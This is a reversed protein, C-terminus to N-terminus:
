RLKVSCSSHVLGRASHQPKTGLAGGPFRTEVGNQLALARRLARSTADGSKVAEGASRARQAPRRVRRRGALHENWEGQSQRPSARGEEGEGRANIFGPQVAADGLGPLGRGPTPPSARSVPSARAPHQGCEPSDAVADLWLEPRGSAVQGGPCVRPGARRACGAVAAPSFVRTGETLRSRPEPTGFGRGGATPRGAAEPHWHGAPRERGKQIFGPRGGGEESAARLKRTEARSRM